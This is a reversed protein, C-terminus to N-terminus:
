RASRALYHITADKDNHVIRIMKMSQLTSIIGDIAREDCDRYFHRIIESRLVTGREGCFSMIKTVTDANPNRGHGLFVLPMKRETKTLLSLAADFDEKTIRLDNGRSASMIMCLKLLHLPRRECYGAFRSDDIAHNDDITLYWDSWLDMFNPAIRFKGSLMLIQSLDRLLAERLQYHYETAFPAPCKPGKKEEYVFIIRSTLGSGVADIPLASHILEPTTAGFINMFVGIIDDEGQTKTRYTWRDRCDFWDTLDSMLIQNNYGLFVTLEPAFVTLSAHMSVAGTEPDVSTDGSERLFRILSERTTAEASLRVGLDVLLQQAPGMATGKRTGAPGVLVVYLNPYLQTHWQLSVKRQLAAAITSIASWHRWLVPPETNFSTFELYAEIWDKCQRKQQM